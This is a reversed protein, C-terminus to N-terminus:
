KKAMAAQAARRDENVRAFAPREGLMKLYGKLQPMAELFDRGYAQRTALSVLPLHVFAPHIHLANTLGPFLDEM